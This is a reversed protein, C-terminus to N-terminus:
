RAQSAVFRRCDTLQPLQLPCVKARIIGLISVISSCQKISWASRSIRPDGAATTMKLALETVRLRSDGWCSVRAHHERHEKGGGRQLHPYISRHSLSEGLKNDRGHENHGASIQHLGIAISFSSLGGRLSQRIGEAAYGDM